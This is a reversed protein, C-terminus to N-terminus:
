LGLRTKWQQATAAGHWLQEKDYLITQPTFGAIGNNNMWDKIKDLDKVDCNARSNGDTIIANTKMLSDMTKVPDVSCYVQKNIDMSGVSVVLIKKLTVNLKELEAHNKRCYGCMPDFLEYVVPAGEIERYTIAYDKVADFSAKSFPHPGASRQPAAAPAAQEKAEAKAQTNFGLEEKRKAVIDTNTQPDYIGGVFLFRGTEDTYLLGTDSTIEYLGKIPAPMVSRIPTNPMSTQITTRVSELDVVKEIPTPQGSSVFAFRAIFALVVLTIFQLVAIHKNQITM